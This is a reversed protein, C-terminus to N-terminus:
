NRKAGSKTKTKSSGSSSEKVTGRESDNIMSPDCLSMDVTRKYHKGDTKEDVEYCAQPENFFLTGLNYPNTRYYYTSYVSKQDRCIHDPIKTAYKKREGETLEWCGGNKTILYEIQPKLGQGEGICNLCQSSYAEDERFEGPSVRCDYYCKQGLYYTKGRVQFSEPLSLSLNIACQACAAKALGLKPSKKGFMGSEFGEPRCENFCPADKHIIHTHGKSRSGSFNDGKVSDRQVVKLTNAVFEKKKGDSTAHSVCKARGSVGDSVICRATICWEYEGTQEFASTIRNEAHQSGCISTADLNAFADFTFLSLVLIIFSM